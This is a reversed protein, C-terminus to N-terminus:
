CSAQREERGVSIRNPNSSERVPCFAHVCGLNCCVMIESGVGGMWSEKQCCSSFVAGLLSFVKVRARSATARPAPLPGKIDARVGKKWVLSPHPLSYLDTESIRM